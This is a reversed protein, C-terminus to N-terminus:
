PWTTGEPNPVEQLEPNVDKVLRTLRIHWGQAILFGRIRLVCKECLEFALYRKEAVAFVVRGDLRGGGEFWSVLGVDAVARNDIHPRDLRLHKAGDVIARCVQLEECEFLQKIEDTPINKLEIGSTYKKTKEDREAKIKAAERLWDRMADCQQLVVLAYDVITDEDADADHMARLRVLWREMLESQEQEPNVANHRRFAM